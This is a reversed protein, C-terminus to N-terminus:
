AARSLSLWISGAAGSAPQCNIGAVISATRRNALSSAFHEQQVTVKDAYWGSGIENLGKQLIGVCVVEVPFLAFAQNLVDDARVSNFQMCADMWLKRLADLSNAGADIVNNELVPIRATGSLPDRGDSIISHWLEVASSISLGEAQRAKLWKLTDIDHASYLRHGGKSRQPKPLHYRREWARVLDAKLGTERLVASLNYLPIRGPNEM